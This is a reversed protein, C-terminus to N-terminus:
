AKTRDLADALENLTVDLALALRKALTWSPLREGGEIHCITNRSCGIKKALASQSRYGSVERLARMPSIPQTM